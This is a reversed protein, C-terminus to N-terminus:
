KANLYCKNCNCIDTAMIGFNWTDNCFSLKGPHMHIPSGWGPTM